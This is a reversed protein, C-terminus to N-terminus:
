KILLKTQPAKAPGFPFFTLSGDPSVIPKTKLLGAIQVNIKQGGDAYGDGNVTVGAFGVQRLISLTEPLPAAAVERQWEDTRRGKM